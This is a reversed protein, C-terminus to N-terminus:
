LRHTCNLGTGRAHKSGSQEGGVYSLTAPGGPRNRAIHELTLTKVQTSPNKPVCVTMTIQILETAVCTPSIPHNKFPNGCGTCRISANLCM